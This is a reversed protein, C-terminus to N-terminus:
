GGTNDPPIWGVIKAPYSVDVQWVEVYSIPMCGKDEEPYEFRGEQLRKWSATLPWDRDTKVVFKMPTEELDAFKRVALVTETIWKQHTGDSKLQATFRIREWSSGNGDSKSEGAPSLGSFFLEVRLGTTSGSQPMLIATAGLSSIAEKFSTIIREM